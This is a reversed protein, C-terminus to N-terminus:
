RRSSTRYCERHPLAGGIPAWDQGRLLREARRSCVAEAAVAAEAGECFVPTFTTESPSITRALQEQAAKNFLRKRLNHFVATESSMDADSLIQRYADRVEAEDDAILVRIPLRKKDSM